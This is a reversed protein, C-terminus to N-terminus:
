GQLADGRRGVAAEVKWMELMRVPLRELEWLGNECVYIEGLLLLEAAAAVVVAAEAAEAQCIEEELAAVGAHVGDTVWAWKNRQGEPALTRHVEAGGAEPHVVKGESRPDAQHDQHGWPWHADMSGSWAPRAFYSPVSLM